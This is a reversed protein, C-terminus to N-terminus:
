RSGTPLGISNRLMMSALEMRSKVGCKTRISKNYDRVTHVSLQMYDAIAQDSLGSILLEMVKRERPSLM